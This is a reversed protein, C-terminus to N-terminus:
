SSQQDPGPESAAESSPLSNEATVRKTIKSVRNTGGGDVVTNPVASANRLMWTAVGTTTKKAMIQTMQAAGNAATVGVVLRRGTSDMFPFWTTKSTLISPVLLNELTWDPTVYKQGVIYVSEPVFDTTLNGLLTYIRCAFTNWALRANFLAREDILPVTDLGVEVAQHDISIPTSYSGAGLGTVQGRELTVGTLCKNSSLLPSLGLILDRSETQVWIDALVCPTCGNMGGSALSQPALMGRRPTNIYELLSHGYMDLAPKYGNVRCHLLSLAHGYESIIITNTTSRQADCFFSRIQRLIGTYNLNSFANNWIITSQMMYTFMYEATVAYDRVTHIVYQLTKPSGDFQLNPPPYVGGDSVPDYVGSMVKNWFNVSMSPVYWEYRDTNYTTPLNNVTSPRLAFFNQSLGEITAQPNPKNAVGPFYEVMPQYRVSLVCALEYTWRLDKERLFIEALQKRFRTLTTLDIPSAPMYMWSTLYQALNYSEFEGGTYHGCVSLQQNAALDGSATPGARPIVLALASAAVATTPNNASERMPLIINIRTSIGPINVLDSVPVFQQVGANEGQDDITSIAVNHMGCPYPALALALLAINLSEYGMDNQMLLGPHIMFWPEEPPVTSKCIHFAIEPVTEAGLFPFFPADTGGCGFNWNTATNFSLSVTPDTDMQTYSDFKGAEGGLPLFNVDYNWNRSFSYLWLKLYLSALSDGNDQPAVRLLSALDMTKFCNASIQDSRINGSRTLISRIAMGEASEVISYCSQRRILGVGFMECRRPNDVIARTGDRTELPYLLAEPHNLDNNLAVTNTGNIVAGRLATERPVSSMTVGQPGLIGTLMQVETIPDFDPGAVEGSDELLPRISHAQEIEAMTNPFDRNYATNGNLAHMRCNHERAMAEIAGGLGYSVVIIVAIIFCQEWWQGNGYPNFSGEKIEDRDDYDGRTVITTDSGSTSAQGPTTVRVNSEPSFVRPVHVPFHRNAWDRYCNGQVLNALPKSWNALGEFVVRTPKSEGVGRAVWYDDSNTKAVGRKEFEAMVVKAIDEPVPDGQTLWDICDGWNKFKAAVRHAVQYRQRAKDMIERDPKPVKLEKENYPISNSRPPKIEQNVNKERELQNKKEERDTYIFNSQHKFIWEPIVVGSAWQRSSHSLCELSRMLENEIEDSNFRCFPNLKIAESTTDFKHQQQVGVFTNPPQGNGYANFSGGKPVDTMDPDEREVTTTSTVPTIVMGEPAYASAWLPRDQQAFGVINTNTSYSGPHDTTFVSVSGNWVSLYLTEGPTLSFLNPTCDIQWVNYTSTASSGAEGVWLGIFNAPTIGGGPSNRDPLSDPATIVTQLGATITGGATGQAIVWLRGVSFQGTDLENTYLLTNGQFTGGSTAFGNIRIAKYQGNGYPNFSGEKIRTSLDPDEGLVLGNTTICDNYITVGRRQYYRRLDSMMVMRKVHFEHECDIRLRDREREDKGDSAKSEVSKEILPKIWTDIAIQAVAEEATSKNECLPGELRFFKTLEPSGPFLDYHEPQRTNHMSLLGRKVAEEQVTKSKSETVGCDVESKSPYAATLACIYQSSDSNNRDVRRTAYILNLGRKVAWEQTKTKASKSVVEDNFSKEM